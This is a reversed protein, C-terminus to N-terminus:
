ATVISPLAPTFDFEGYDAVVVSDDCVVRLYEPRVYTCLKWRGGARAAAGVHDVAHAPRAPSRLARSRTPQQAPRPGPLGTRRGRAPTSRQGGDDDSLGTLRWVLGSWALGWISRYTTGAM